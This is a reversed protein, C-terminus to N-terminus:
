NFNRQYIETAEKEIKEGTIEGKYFPAGYVKCLGEFIRLWAMENSWANRKNKKDEDQKNATAIAKRTIKM